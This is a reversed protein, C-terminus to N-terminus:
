AGTLEYPICEVGVLAAKEVAQMVHDSVVIQLSDEFLRFFKFGMARKANLVASWITMLPPRTDPYYSSKARDLCSVLGIVNVARYGEIVEGSPSILRARYSEFNDVGSGNLASVLRVSFLPIDSVFLDPLISGTKPNLPCDIPESVEGPPHLHGMTWPVDMDPAGATSALDRDKKRQLRYYTM